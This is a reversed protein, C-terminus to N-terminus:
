CTFGLPLAPQSPLRRIYDRRFFPDLQFHFEFETSIRHDSPPTGGVPPPVLAPRYKRLWAAQHRRDFYREVASGFECFHEYVATKHSLDGLVAIFQHDSDSVLTM